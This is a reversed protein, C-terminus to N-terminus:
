VFQKLVCLHKHIELAIKYLLKDKIDPFQENYPLNYTEVNSCCQYQETLNIISQISSSEDCADKWVQVCQQLVTFTKQLQMKVETHEQCYTHNTMEM